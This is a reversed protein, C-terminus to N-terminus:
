DVEREEYEVDIINPNQNRPSSSQHHTTSGNRTDWWEKIRNIIWLILIGLIIYPLLQFVVRFFFSLLIFLFLLVLFLYM